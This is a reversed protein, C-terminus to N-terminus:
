QPYFIERLAGILLATFSEVTLWRKKVLEADRVSKSTERASYPEQARALFLFPTVDLGYTLCSFLLDNTTVNM